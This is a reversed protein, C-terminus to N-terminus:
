TARQLEKVIELLLATMAASSDLDSRPHALALVRGGAHRVVIAAPVVGIGAMDAGSRVLVSADASDVQGEDKLEAFVGDRVPVGMRRATEHVIPCFAPDYVRSMDPFRPGINEDNPGTLPNDGTLNLHDEVFLLDASAPAPHLWRGEGALLFTQVGVRRLDRLRQVGPFGRVVAVQPAVQEVQM